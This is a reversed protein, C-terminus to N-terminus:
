RADSDGGSRELQKQLAAEGYAPQYEASPPIPKVVDLMGGAPDRVSFHRQGWDEDRLEILIEHGDSRLRRYLGDVEDVEITLFVGKGNFAHRESSPLSEHEPTMFALELPMEGGDRPGHLQVYWGADFEVAFGFYKTYFDRAETVATTAIVPFLNKLKM